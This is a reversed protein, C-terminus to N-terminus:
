NVRGFESPGVLSRCHRVAVGLPEMGQIMRCTSGEVAGDGEALGSSQWAEQPVVQGTGALAVFMNGVVQQGPELELEPVM